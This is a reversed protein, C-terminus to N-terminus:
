ILKTPPNAVPENFSGRLNSVVHIKDIDVEGYKVVVDLNEFYGRAVVRKM